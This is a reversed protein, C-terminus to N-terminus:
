VGDLIRMASPRSKAHCQPCQASGDQAPASPQEDPILLYRSVEAGATAMLERIAEGSTDQREGRAGKDSMTLIGLRM